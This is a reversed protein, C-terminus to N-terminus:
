KLSRKDSKKLSKNIAEKERYKETIHKKYVSKQRTPDVNKWYEPGDLSEVREKVKYGINYKVQKTNKNMYYHIQVNQGNSLRVEFTTYKAWDEIQSGDEILSRRVFPNGLDEGAILHRQNFIAFETLEFKENVLRAERFALEVKLKDYGGRSQIDSDSVDKRRVLPKQNRGPPLSKQQYLTLISSNNDKPLVSPVIERSTEGMRRTVEEIPHGNKSAKYMPMMSKGITSIAKGAGLLLMDGALENASNPLLTEAIYMEAQYAAKQVERLRRDFSDLNGNKLDCDVEDIKKKASQIQNKKFTKVSGDIAEQGSRCGDNAEALNPMDKRNQRQFELIEESREGKLSRWALSLWSSNEKQKSPQTSNSQLQSHRKPNSNSQSQHRQNRNQFTVQSQSQSLSQSPALAQSGSNANEMESAHVPSVFTNLISVIASQVGQIMAEKKSLDNGKAVRGMYELKRQVSASNGQLAPHQEALNRIDREESRVGKQNLRKQAIEVVRNILREHYLEERLENKRLGNSRPKDVPKGNQSHFQPQRKLQSQLRLQPNPQSQLKLKSQHSQSGSNSPASPRSLFEEASLLGSNGPIVRPKISGEGGSLGLKPELVASSRGLPNPKTTSTGRECEPKSFRASTSVRDPSSFKESKSLMAPKAFMLPPRSLVDQVENVIKKPDGIPVFGRIHTKDATVVTSHESDRNLGSIDKQTVIEINGSITAKSQQTTKNNKYNVEGTGKVASGTGKSKFTSMLDFCGLELGVGIQKEKDVCVVDEHQIEPCVVRGVGGEGLELKAGVLKIQKKIEVLLAEKAQITTQQPAKHSNQQGESFNVGGSTSIGYSESECQRVNQLTEMQLNEAELIAQLTEVYVGRLSITDGAKLLTSKGKLKSYVQQQETTTADRADCGVNPLHNSTNYGVRFGREQQSSQMAREAANLKLNQEAMACFEEYEAQLGITHINKAKLIIERAQLWPLAVEAWHSEGSEKSMRLGPNFSIQGKIFDGLNEAQSFSKYSQYAYYLSKMGTGVKDATETSNLFEGVSAILPCAQLISKAAGAFDQKMAAEVAASGFFSLGTRYQEYSLDHHFTATQIDMLGVPAQIEILRGAQLVPAVLFVDGLRSGIQVNNGAICHTVLGSQHQETQVRKIHSLGNRGNTQTHAQSNLTLAELRCKQDGFLGINSGAYIQPATGELTEKAYVTVNGNDAILAVTLGKEQTRKRITTVGRESVYEPRRDDTVITKGLVLKQQALLRIDGEQSRAQLSNWTQNTAELHVDGISEVITPHITHTIVHDTASVTQKANKTKGQVVEIHQEVVAQESIRDINHAKVGGAGATIRLSSMDLQGINDYEIGHATMTNGAQLQNIQVVKNNEETKKRQKLSFSKETTSLDTVMVERVVVRKEQSLHQFDTIVIKGHLAELHGTIGLASNNKNEGRIVLGQRAFIGGAWDRLKPNDWSVPIRLIPVLVTEKRGSLHVFELEEYVMMPESIEMLPKRIGSEVCTRFFKESNSRLLSLMKESSESNEDLFGRGLTNLLSKILLQAELVPPYFCRLNKVNPMLSGDLAEVLISRTEAEFNFPIISRFVTESATEPIEFFSSPRVYHEILPIRPRFAKPAPLSFQFSFNNQTNKVTNAFGIQGNQVNSLQISGASVIGTVKLEHSKAVLEHESSLVAQLPDSVSQTKQKSWWFKRRECNQYPIFSTVTPMVGQFSGASVQSGFIESSGKSDIKGGVILKAPNTIAYESNKVLKYTSFAGNGVRTIRQESTEQGVLLRHRRSPTDFVADGLINSDSSIDDLNAAKISFRQGCFLDISNWTVAQSAELDMNQGSMIGSPLQFHHAQPIRGLTIFSASKLAVGEAGVVRGHTLDMSGVDMKMKGGAQLAIYRNLDGITVPTPSHIQLNKAAIYNAYIYLPVTATHALTIKLSGPVSMSQSLVRGQLWHLALEGYAHIKSVDWYFDRGKEQLQIDQGATIMGALNINFTKPYISGQTTIWGTTHNLGMGEFSIDGQESIVYGKVDISYSRAESTTKFVIDNKSRVTDIVDIFAAELQVGREANIPCTVSIAQHPNTSRANLRGSISLPANFRIINATLNFLRGVQINWPVYSFSNAARIDLQDSVKIPALCAVESSVINATATELQANCIVSKECEVKINKAQVPANIMVTNGVINLEQVEVAENFAVTNSNIGLTQAKIGSRVDVSPGRMHINNATTAANLLIRGELGINQAQVRTNSVITPAHIKISRRSKLFKKLSLTGEMQCIDLMNGTMLGKELMMLKEAKVKFSESVIPSDSLFIRSVMDIGKGAQVISTEDTEIRPARMNIQGDKCQIRGLDTNKIKGQLSEVVLLNKEAGIVGHRNNIDKKVKVRTQKQSFVVGEANNLKEGNVLVTEGLLCGAINQIDKSYVKLHHDAMIKGRSNDLGFLETQSSKLCLTINGGQIHNLNRLSDAFCIFGANGLIVGDTIVRNAKQVIVQGDTKVNELYCDGALNFQWDGTGEINKVKLKGKEDLSLSATEVGPLSLELSIGEEIDYIKDFEIKKGLTLDNYEVKVKYLTGPGAVKEITFKAGGNKKELKKFKVEFGKKIMCYLTNRYTTSMNRTAKDIREKTEHLAAVLASEKDVLRLDAGQNVLFQFVLSKGNKAALALATGNSGKADIPAGARLLVKVCNLHGRIAALHLASDGNRTLAEVSVGYRLLKKLSDFKGYFAAIHSAQWGTLSNEKTLKIGGSVLLDIMFHSNLLIGAHLLNNGQESVQNIGFRQEKLVSSLSGNIALRMCFEEMETKVRNQVEQLYSVVTAFGAQRAYDIPQKRHQNYHNIDAGYEVLDQILTLEGHEALAHLLGNEAIKANTIGSRQFRELWQSFPFQSAPERFLNEEFLKLLAQYLHSRDNFYNSETAAVRTFSERFRQWRQHGITNCDVGLNRFKELLSQPVEELGAISAGQALLRQIMAQQYVIISFYLIEKAKPHYNDFKLGNTFLWDVVTLQNSIVAILLWEMSEPSSLYKKPNSGLLLSIAELNGQALAKDIAWEPKAGAKLLLNAMGLNQAVIAERLATSSNNDKGDIDLKNRLVRNLILEAIEKNQCHVALCHLVTKNHHNKHEVKVGAELLCKAEKYLGREIALMLISSGDAMTHNLHIGQIQLQADLHELSSAETVVRQMANSVRTRETQLTNEITTLKLDRAYDLASKQQLDKESVNVGAQILLNILESDAHNVAAHLFGSTIEEITYGGQILCAVLAEFDIEKNALVLTDMQLLNLLSPFFKAVSPTILIAMQLNIYNNYCREYKKSVFDSSKLNKCAKDISAGRQLLTSVMKVNGLALAHSLPTYGESTKESTTQVKKGKELHEVLLDRSNILNQFQEKQGGRDTHQILSLKRFRKHIDPLSTERSVGLTEYAKALPNVPRVLPQAIQNSTNATNTNTNTSATHTNTLTVNLPPVILLSSQNDIEIGGQLELFLNVLELHNNSVALHLATGLRLTSHAIKGGSKLLCNILYKVVATRGSRVAFHLANFGYIDAQEIKAGRSILYRVIDLHGYDAAMHLATMEGIANAINIDCGNEVLYIVAQTAGCCAAKHLITNGNYDIKLLDSKAEILIKLTHLDGFLVAFDIARCFNIGNEQELNAGFAILNKMAKLEKWATAILLASNGLMNKHHISINYQILQETIDKSEIAAKVVALVGIQTREMEPQLWTQTALQQSEKAYDMPLKQYANYANVDWGHLLLNKLIELQGFKAAAHMLGLELLAKSDMKGAEQLQLIIKEKLDAPMVPESPMMQHLTQEKRANHATSFAADTLPLPTPMPTPIPIPLPKPPMPMPAALASNNKHNPGNHSKNKTLGPQSKNAVGVSVPFIQLGAVTNLQNFHNGRFSLNVTRASPGANYRHLIKLKRTNDILNNQKDLNDSLGWVVVNLNNLKAIADLSSQTASDQDGSFSLWNNPVAVYHRVYSEFVPKTNCSNRIDIRAERVSSIQRQLTLKAQGEIRGVLQDATLPMFEVRRNAAYNFKLDYVLNELARRAQLYCQYKNFLDAAAGDELMDDPIDHSMLHDEIETALMARIETNNAEALLQRAAQERPIGLSHYGCDGDMPMYYEYFAAATGDPYQAPIAQVSHTVPQRTSSSFFKAGSSIDFM